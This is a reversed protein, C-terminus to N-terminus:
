DVPNFAAAPNPIFRVWDVLMRKPFVTTPAVPGPWRGGVALNLLVNMPKDFVWRARPPLMSPIFTSVVRDDITMAILGPARHVAYTHFQAGAIGWFPGSRTLQWHTGTDTPGHLATHWSTGANVFEMIDIEGSEPYGVQELDAGLLWFAPHLGTGTPVQIRAAITGWRFAHHGRTTLRASTIRDGERRAEIVLHGRGDLRANSTSSTYVQQEGNGWGGGGVDHTWISPNPPAGAPGTFEESAGTSAHAAGGPLAGLAAVAVLTPILLHRVLAPRDIM